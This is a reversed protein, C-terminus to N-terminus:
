RTGNKVGLDRQRSQIYTGIIKLKDKDDLQMSLINEIDDLTDESFVHVIIPEVPESQVVSLLHQTDIPSAGTGNDGNIEIQPVETLIFKGMWKSVTSWGRQKCTNRLKVGSKLQSIYVNAAQDSVGTSLLYEKFKNLM